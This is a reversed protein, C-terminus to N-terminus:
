ALLCQLFRKRSFDLSVPGGIRKKDIYDTTVFDAQYLSKVKHSKMKIKRLLFNSSHSQITGHVPPGTYSDSVTDLLRPYKFHRIRMLASKATIKSHLAGNLSPVIIPEFMADWIWM